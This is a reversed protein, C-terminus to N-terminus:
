VAELCGGVTVKVQVFRANAFVKPTESAATIKYGRSTPEYSIAAVRKSVRPRKDTFDYQPAPDGAVAGEEQGDDGRSPDGESGDEVFSKSAHLHMKWEVTNVSPDVANLRRITVGQCNRLYRNREQEMLRSVAEEIPEFNKWRNGSRPKAIGQCHEIRKRIHALTIKNVAAGIGTSEKENMLVFHNAEMTDFTNLFLPRAKLGFKYLEREGETELERLVQEVRTPGHGDEPQSSGKDVDGVGRIFAALGANDRCLREDM